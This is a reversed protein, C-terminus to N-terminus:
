RPTLTNFLIIREQQKLSLNGVRRIENYYKNKDTYTENTIKSLILEIEIDCNAIEDFMTEWQEYTDNM